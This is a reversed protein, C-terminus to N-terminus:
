INIQIVKQKLNYSYSYVCNRGLSVLIENFVSTIKNLFDSESVNDGVKVVIVHKDINKKLYSVLQCKNIIFNDHRRYYEMTKEIANPYSTKDYIHDLLVAEDSLGFYDYRPYEYSKVGKDFTVDVHCWKGDIQIMNWAHRELKMTAPDQAEGSVVLCPIGMGDMIFKYAKSFGDCTAYKMTLPAVMSHSFDGDDKYEINRILMDHVAVATEYTDNKKCKEIIKHRREVCNKILEDTKESELSYNPLICVVGAMLMFEFGRVGIAKPSNNLAFICSKKLCAIDRTLLKISKKRKDIGECIKVYDPDEIFIGKM